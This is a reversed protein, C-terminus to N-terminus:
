APGGAPPGKAQNNSRKRISAAYEHGDLGDLSLHECLAACAEREEAVRREIEANPRVDKAVWNGGHLFYTTDAEGGTFTDIRWVLPCLSKAAKIAGRMDCCNAVPLDVALHGDDVVRWATWACQLDSSWMAHPRVSRELPGADAPRTTENEHTM